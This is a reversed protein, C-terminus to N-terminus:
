KRRKIRGHRDETRYYVSKAAAYRTVPNKGAPMSSISRHKILENKKFCTTPKYSSLLCPSHLHRSAHMAAPETRDISFDAHEIVENEKQTTSAVQSKPRGEPEFDFKRSGGNQKEWFVGPRLGDAWCSIHAVSKLHKVISRLSFKPRHCSIFIISSKYERWEEEERSNKLQISANRYSLGRQVVVYEM